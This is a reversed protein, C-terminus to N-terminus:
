TLQSEDTAHTRRLIPAELLRFSTETLLLTIALWLVVLGANVSIGPPLRRLAGQTRSQIMLISIPYHILYLGYSRRGLYRLAPTELTNGLVRPLLGEESAFILMATLTIVPPIALIQSRVDLATLTGHLGFYCGALALASIGAIWAWSRFLKARLRHSRMALAMAAGLAIGDMRSPTLAYPFAAPAHAVALGFRTLECIAILAMSLRLLQWESLRKASWPWLLYFQEEIALSWIQSLLPMTAGNLVTWNELFFVAPLLVAAGLRIQPQAVRLYVFSVVFVALLAPLIRGARRLYFRSWYDPRHRDEVLIRTIFFGSLVFFIDVGLWGAYMLRYVRSVMVSYPIDAFLVEAMHVIVVSVIALGRLGDLQTNRKM